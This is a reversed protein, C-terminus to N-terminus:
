ESFIYKLDLKLESGFIGVPIFNETEDADYCYSEPAKDVKEFIYVDILYNYPDVIWYEKVGSKRYIELKTKKDRRSTSPSLIEVVLDPAGQINKETIKSKDCVVMIDPKAIDDKSLVADLEYFVECTKGKLYSEIEFAIKKSIRQHRTTLSPSMAYAVGNLLEWDESDKWTKYDDYTYREERSIKRVATM